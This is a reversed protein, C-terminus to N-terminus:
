RNWLALFLGHETLDGFQLRYTRLWVREGSVALCHLGERKWRGRRNVRGKRRADKLRIVCGFCTQQLDSLIATPSAMHAVGPVETAAATHGDFGSSRSAKGRGNGSM